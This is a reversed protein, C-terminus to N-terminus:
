KLRSTLEAKISKGRAGFFKLNSIAYAVVSKGSDAGYNESIDGLEGMADVYPKAAAPIKKGAMRHMNIIENHIQYIQAQKLQSKYRVSSYAPDNVSDGMVFKGRFNGDPEKLQREYMDALSENPDIAGARARAEANAKAQELGGPNSGRWRMHAAYRGAESRSGFKAKELVNQSTQSSKAVSGALLVDAKVQEWEEPTCFQLASPELFSLVDALNQNMTADYRGNSLRPSTTRLSNGRSGVCPVIVARGWTWGVIPATTSM